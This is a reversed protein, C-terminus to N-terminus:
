TLKRSLAGCDDKELHRLALARRMREILQALLVFLDCEVGGLAQFQYGGPEGNKVVV